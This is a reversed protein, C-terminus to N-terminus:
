RRGMNPHYVKTIGYKLYLEEKLKKSLYDVYKPNITYVDGDQHVLNRDLIEKRYRSFFRYNSYGVDDHRFSVSTMGVQLMDLMNIFLKQSNPKMEQFLVLGERTFTYKRSRVGAIDRINNRLFEESDM